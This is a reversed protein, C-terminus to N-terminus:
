NCAESDAPFKLCVKIWFALSCLSVQGNANVLELVILDLFKVRILSTGLESSDIYQINEGKTDEEDNLRYSWGVFELYDYKM